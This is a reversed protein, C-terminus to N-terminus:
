PRQKDAFFDWVMGLVRENYYTAAAHTGPDLAALVAAASGDCGEYREITMGEAQSHAPRGPCGLQAAWWEVTERASMFETGTVESTGGEFPVVRDMVGAIQLVSVPEPKASKTQVPSLLAGMPAVAAFRPLEIAVRHAFGAGNSFGIAYVRSPDISALEGLWTLLEGIFGVDDAEAGATYGDNWVRSVAGPCVVVFGERNAVQFLSSPCATEPLGGAHHFSVVLPLTEPAGALVPVFLRVGRVADDYTVDLVTLGGYLEVQSPNPRITSASPAEDPQAVCGALLM